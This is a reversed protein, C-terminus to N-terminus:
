NKKLTHKLNKNSWLSKIGVSLEGFEFISSSAYDNNSLYFDIKENDKSYLLAQYAKQYKYKVLNDKLDEFGGFLYEYIEEWDDEELDILDGTQPDTGVLVCPGFFLVNDVPPPFDYKNEQGARGSKKGYLRISQDIGDEAGWTHQLVFGEGVKLGVKKYLSEETFDKVSITKLTGTKEIVVIKPM